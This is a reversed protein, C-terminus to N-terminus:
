FRGNLWLEDLHMWNIVTHMKKPFLSDLTTKGFSFFLFTSKPIFIYDWCKEDIDGSIRISVNGTAEKTESNREAYM